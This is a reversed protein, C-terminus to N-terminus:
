YLQEHIIDTYKRFQKSTLIKNPNITQDEIQNPIIHLGIPSFDGLMFVKDEYKGFFSNFETFNFNRREFFSKIVVNAKSAIRLMMKIESADVIEFSLLHSESVFHQLEDGLYFEFLPIQLQEFEKKQFIRSNKKDFANLIKLRLPIFSVQQHIFSTPTKSILQPLPINYQLLYDFFFSNIKALSEAINKSRFKLKKNITVIDSFDKISIEPFTQSTYNSLFYNV